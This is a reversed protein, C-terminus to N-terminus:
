LESTQFPRGRLLLIMLAQRSLAVPLAILRSSKHHGFFQRPFQGIAAHIDSAATSRFILTIAPAAPIRLVYRHRTGHRRAGDGFAACSFKPAAHRQGNRLPGSRMLAGQPAAIARQARWPFPALLHPLGWIRSHRASLAQLLVWVPAMGSHTTMFVRASAVHLNSGSRQLGRIEEGLEFICRAPQSGTSELRQRAVPQPHRGPQLMTRMSVIPIVITEARM